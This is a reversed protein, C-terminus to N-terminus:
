PAHNLTLPAMHGQILAIQSQLPPRGRLLIVDSTQPLFRGRFRKNPLLLLISLVFSL